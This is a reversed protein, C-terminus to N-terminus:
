KVIQLRIRDLSLAVAAIIMLGQATQQVYPSVGLLIMGNGLITVILVGILTNVVGGEGGTLATGGVVVATVAAFLRGDAIVADSRGLQAASLVGAMGFFFGALGFALIRVRRVNVGSLEALDEGGGIAMIYRGLRTHYQITCAFAFAGLAVWVGLPLGAFRALALNRISPDMLRVASGGLMYVSIGLGIFWVGLTAMFSPIRLMTQILGTALGMVTSAAIAAFVALWGFQNTNADNAALLVVVMAAVSLSGEVSLDISGLLIIFTLGMALTLPVAASNAIRVLNRPEIFSPNAITILVCLAILVFLPAARKNTLRRALGLLASRRESAGGAKLNDINATM